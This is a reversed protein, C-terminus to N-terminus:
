RHRRRPGPRRLDPRAPTQLDPEDPQVTTVGHLAMRDRYFPMRMTFGTGLLAVTDLGAARIATATEDIMHIVPVDVAEEGAPAVLHMTNACILMAGAGGEHLRREYELTSRWTIGGLLAIKRPSPAYVRAVARM